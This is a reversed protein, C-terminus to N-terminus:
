LLRYDEDFRPLCRMSTITHVLQILFPDAVAPDTVSFPRQDADQTVFAPSLTPLATFQRTMNWYDFQTRMQGHTTNLVEMYEAYRRQFGFTDTNSDVGPTGGTAPQLYVEQNLVNQEGILAFDPWAYDIAQSRTFDRPLSQQYQTRPQVYMFAMLIGWEQCAYNIKDSSLGTIGHGAMNGQPTGSGTATSTQLVESFILPSKFAGLIEPRQLSADAPVVGFFESILSTFRGIDGLGARMAKERWRQLASAQRLETITVASAGTLDAELGSESGFKMQSTPAGAALVSVTNPTTSAYNAYTVGDPSIAAQYLPADVTNNFSVGGSSAGPYSFVPYEGNTVVPATGGLPLEVGTGTQPSLYCSTLYDREWMPSLLDTNSTTDRGGTTVTAIPDVINPNRFWENVNLNYCRFDLMSVDVDTGVSTGSPIRLHDALSGISNDIDTVLKAFPWTQSTDGSLGAKLFTQVGDWLLRYPTYTYFVKVTMEHMLPSFLPITRFLADTKLEIYDGPLMHHNLIPILKNLPATLTRQHTLDFTSRKVDGTYRVYNSNILKKGM